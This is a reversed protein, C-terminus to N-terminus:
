ANRPGYVINDLRIEPLPMNKDELWIQCLSTAMELNGNPLWYIDKGEREMKRYWIDQRKCFKRIQILLLERMEEFSLEQQLFKAIYRYELGFWDLREWSVGQRHLAAVEEVMGAAFRADLRQEIRQHMVKRDYFPAIFLANLPPYGDIPKPGKTKIIELSRIIRRKNQKDTREYYEPSAQLLMEVLEPLEKQELEARYEMDPECGELLYGDVLANIYLPTGGVIIPLKGRSQIDKIAERADKVYRFLHYDQNPEVVDILHYPIMGDETVFDDLDKGTGLDLGRYVQRSDASIVEGNFKRCLSVAMSTKGSATPGIIAIVKEM